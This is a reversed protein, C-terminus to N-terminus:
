EEDEGMVVEEDGMGGGEEDAAAYRDCLAWLDDRLERVEDLELGM